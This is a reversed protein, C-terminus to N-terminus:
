VRSRYETRLNEALNMGIGDRDICLRRLRPSSKLLERLFAEQAQFRSRDLSKGMRYTVRRATKDLVILESTNRTRGV